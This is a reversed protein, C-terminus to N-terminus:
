SFFENVVMRRVDADQATMMEVSSWRAHLKILVDQLIDQALDNDACVTRAFRLWHPLRAKAYKDFTL